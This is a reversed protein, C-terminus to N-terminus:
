KSWKPQVPWAVASLAPLSTWPFMGWWFALNASVYSCRSICRAKLETRNRENTPHTFIGPTGTTYEEDLEPALFSHLNTEMACPLRSLPHVYNLTVCDPEFRNSGTPLQLIGVRVCTCRNRYVSDYTWSLRGCLRVKWWRRRNRKHIIKRKRNQEYKEWKSGRRRRKKIRDM